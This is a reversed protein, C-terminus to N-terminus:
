WVSFALRPFFRGPAASAAEKGGSTGGPPRQCPLNDVPESWTHCCSVIGGQPIQKKRRISYILVLQVENKNAKKPFWFEKLDLHTKQEFRLLKVFISRVALQNM